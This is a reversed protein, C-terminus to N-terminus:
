HGAKHPKEFGAEHTVDALKEIPASGTPSSPPPTSLNGVEPLKAEVSPVPATSAQPTAAAKKHAEILAQQDFNMPPPVPTPASTPAATPARPVRKKPRPTPLPTPVFVPRIAVEHQPISSRGLIERAGFIEFVAREEAPLRTVSRYEERSLAFPGKVIWEKSNIKADITPRAVYVERSGSYFLKVQPADPLDGSLEIAQPPGKAKMFNYLYTSREMEKALFLNAGVFPNDSSVPLLGQNLLSSFPHKPPSCAAALLVPISVLVILIRLTM